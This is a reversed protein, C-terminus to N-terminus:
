ILPYHYVESKALNVVERYAQAIHGVARWAEARSRAETANECREVQSVHKGDALFVICVYNNAM